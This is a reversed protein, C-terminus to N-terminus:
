QTIKTIAEEMPVLHGKENSVQGSRSKKIEHDEISGCTEMKKQLLAQTGKIMKQFIELWKRELQPDLCARRREELTQNPRLRAKFANLMACLPDIVQGFGERHKEKNQKEVVKKDM